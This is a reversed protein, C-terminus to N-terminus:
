PRPAYVTVVAGTGIKSYTARGAASLELPALLAAAGNENPWFHEIWILAPCPAKAAVVDGPALEKVTFGYRAAYFRYGYSRAEIETPNLPTTAIPGNSVRAYPVAYVQTTPCLQVVRQISVATQKWGWWGQDQHAAYAQAGLAFLCITVAALTPWLASALLTILILVAGAIGTLYREFLM